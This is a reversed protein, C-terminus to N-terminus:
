STPAYIIAHNKPYRLIFSSEGRMGEMFADQGIEQINGYIRDPRCIVQKINNTDISILVDRPNLGAAGFLWYPVPFTPLQDLAPEHIFKITVGAASVFSYIELGFSLASPKAIQIQGGMVAGSSMITRTYPILRRLFNKSVLFTFDKASNTRFASLSDAIDDLWGMLTDAQTTATGAFTAAGLAKKMYTIPFLAYDLLGGLTRAPQGTMFTSNNTAGTVATEGKVGFLYASEKMGKYLELYMARTRQFDDGFRFQSAQHTGTIGYKPTAFIQSYNTIRERYATFNGGAVFTDGEPIALPATMNRGVHVMRAIKGAYDSAATRASNLFLSYPGTAAVTGNPAPISVCASDYVGAAVGNNYAVYSQMTATLSLNSVNLDLEFFLWTGNTGATNGTATWIGCKNILILAENYTEITGKVLTDDSVGTSKAGLGFSIEDFAMYVPAMASSSYDFRTLTQAGNDNSGTAAVKTYGLNTMLQHLRNWVTEITGVTNDNDKKFAVLIKNTAATASGRNNAPCFAQGYTSTSAGTFAVKVLTNASDACALINQNTTSGANIMSVAKLMGGIYSSSTIAYPMTAPGITSVSGSLASIASGSGALADQYRLNDLAIDWWMNGQYEDNWVIYPPKESVTGLNSMITLLPTDEAKHTLMNGYIDIMYKDGIGVITNAYAGTSELDQTQGLEAATLGVYDARTTFTDDIPM